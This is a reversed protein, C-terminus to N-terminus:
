LVFKPCCLRISSKEFMQLKPRCASLLFIMNLFFEFCAFKLRRPATYRRNKLVQFIGKFKNIGRHLATISRYLPNRQRRSRWQDARSREYWIDRRRKLTAIDESFIVSIAPYTRPSIYPPFVAVSVLGAPVLSLATLVELSTGIPLQGGGPTGPQPQGPPAEGPQIRGDIGAANVVGVVALVTLVVALLRRGFTEEDM